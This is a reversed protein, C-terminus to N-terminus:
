LEKEILKLVEEKFEDGDLNRLDDIKLALLNNSSPILDLIADEFDSWYFGGHRENLEAYVKFLENLFGKNSAKSEAEQYKANIRILSEIFDVRTLTGVDGHKLESIADLIPAINVIKMM